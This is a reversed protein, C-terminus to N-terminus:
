KLLILKKLDVFEGATLKYLYIGSALKSADFKLKHKGATLEKEVLIAVENGLLDYVRLNVFGSMALIFEINTVPNFPNPYNQELSYENPQDIQVEVIDSYEFSGDFDIQKLRYYFTNVNAISSVNDSYSYHKTETTTGNGEVFGLNEWDTNTKREVEFGKNNIETATIWSLLVIQGQISYDFSILEVPIISCLENVLVNPHGVTLEVNSIPGGITELMPLNIASLSLNLEAPNYLNSPCSGNGSSDTKILYIDSGGLSGSYSNGVLVSGNDPTSKLDFAYDENNGGFTRFWQLNGSSNIHMLFVDYGGFGYSNTYGAINYGDDVTQVISYAAENNFGGFTKSWLVAGLYDTRIVLIDDGGSGFSQTQGVVILGDDALELISHIRELGGGGYRKAWLVNGLSDTKTITADWYAGYISFGALFINGQTSIINRYNHDEESTGIIKEWEKVGESSFKVLYIDKSGFGFSATYGSVIVGGDPAMSIGRLEDAEIGGINRRWILNGISDIKIVEMDFFGFGGEIYGALFYSGDDAQKIGHIREWSTTGYTGTWEIEGDASVKLVFMDRDGIGYSTTSGCVIYGGDATLEISNAVDEGNGGFRKEFTIPEFPNIINAPVLHADGSLDLHNQLVTLDRVDDAGDNNVGLDELEDFRWYGVLGSDLTAFYGNDLPADKTFFIQNVTRQYNWVRVEDVQGDFFNSVVYNGNHLMYGDAGVYFNYTNNM